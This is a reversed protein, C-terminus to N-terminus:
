EETFYDEDIRKVTYAKNPSVGLDFEIMYQALTEGDILVIKKEIQRVFDQADSSFKSTTIFIGRKARVRDLSGSFDRVTPEGVTNEWRKAQVYVVDLGLRDQRIIGDIGGDRSRGVARAADTRNGGYGMRVLLDIVASEFFRPTQKKLRDLLDAALTDSLEAYAAELREQPTTSSVVETPTPESDTPKAKKFKQFEPFQMLFQDTIKAPNDKLVKKGRESIEYIGRAPRNVLASKELYVLAWRVRNRFKLDQESPLLEVREEETLHFHDALSETIEAAIRQKGDGLICLAPKMIDNYYPIAM